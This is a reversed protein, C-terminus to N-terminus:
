QTAEPLKSLGETRLKKVQLISMNIITGLYTSELIAGLHMSGPTYNGPSYITYIESM